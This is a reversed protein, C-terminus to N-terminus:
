KKLIYTLFHLNTRCRQILIEFFYNYRFIYASSEFDKKKLGIKLQSNGFWLFTLAKVVISCYKQKTINQNISFYKVRSKVLVLSFEVLQIFIWYVM